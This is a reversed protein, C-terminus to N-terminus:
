DFSDTSRKLKLAYIDLADRLEIARRIMAYM